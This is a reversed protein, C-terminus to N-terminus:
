HDVALQPYDPEACIPRWCPAIHLQLLSASSDFPLCLHQAVAARRSPQSLSKGRRQAQLLVALKPMSVGGEGSDGWLGAAEYPPCSAGLGLTQIIPVKAQHLTGLTQPRCSTCGCELPAQLGSGSRDSHTVIAGAPDGGQGTKM